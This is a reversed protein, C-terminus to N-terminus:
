TRSSIQCIYLQKTVEKSLHLICLVKGETRRVHTITSNNTYDWWPTPQYHQLVIDKHRQLHISTAESSRIKNIRFSTKQKKSNLCVPWPFLETKRQEKHEKDELHLVTPLLHAMIEKEKKDQREGKDTQRDREAKRGRDIWLLQVKNVLCSHFRHVCM